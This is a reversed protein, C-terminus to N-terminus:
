GQNGNETSRPMITDIQKRREELEKMAIERASQSYIYDPNKLDEELRKLREEYRAKQRTVDIRFGEKSFRWLKDSDRVLGEDKSIFGRRTDHQFIIELIRPIFETPYDLNRLIEEALRVSEEQHEFQVRRRQESTANRAFILMRRWKPLRSWGVDHLMIAPIVIDENGKELEVLKKAYSTAVRAHGDDNRKDQFPLATEWIKEFIEKM